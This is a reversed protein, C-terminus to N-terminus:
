QRRGPLAALLHTEFAGPQSLNVLHDAGPVTVLRSGSIGDAIRRAFVPMSPNDRDGVVVTTPARLQGLRKAAPTAQAQNQTPSAFVETLNEEVMTRFLALAAGQLEACWLSRLLEVARSREGAAWARSIEQSKQDDYDLARQEAADFPPLIGGSLGPAALFLAAVDDPHELAYDVAIAGGMSSGVLTAPALRLEHIIAHLDAINSFRETTASSGGFGRLDFRVARHHSGLRAFERDWMRRDAIVSHIFVVSEGRGAADYALHGGPVKVVNSEPGSGGPGSTVTMGSALSRGSKFPLSPHQFPRGEPAVATPPGWRARSTILVPRREVGSTRAFPEQASGQVSPSGILSADSGIEGPQVIRRDMM